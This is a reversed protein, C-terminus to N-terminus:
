GDSSRNEYASSISSHAPPGARLKAVAARATCRSWKSGLERNTIDETDSPLRFRNGTDPKSPPLIARAASLMKSGSRTARTMTRNSENKTRKTSQHRESYRMKLRQADSERNTKQRDTNAFIKRESRTQTSPSIDADKKSIKLTYPLFLSNKHSFDWKLGNLKLKRRFKRSNEFFINCKAFIDAVINYQCKQSSKEGVHVPM